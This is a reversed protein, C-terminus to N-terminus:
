YKESMYRQPDEILFYASRVTPNTMQTLFAAVAVAEAGALMRHILNYRVLNYRIPNVDKFNVLHDNM